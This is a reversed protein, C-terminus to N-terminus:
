KVREIPTFVNSSQWFADKDILGDYEKDITYQKTGAWTDEMHGDHDYVMFYQDRSEGLITFPAKPDKMTLTFPSLRQEQLNFISSSLYAANLYVKEWHDIMLYGDKSYAISHSQDNPFTALVVSEESSMDTKWLQQDKIGYLSGQEYHADGSAAQVEKGRKKHDIDYSYYSKTTDLFANQYAEYKKNQLLQDIDAKFNTKSFILQRGQAAELYEYNLDMVAEYSATQLNIAYLKKETTIGTMSGDQMKVYESKEVQIYLTHDAIAICSSDFQYGEELQFLEKQNKGDLDMQLISPIRNGGSIQFGLDDNGSIENSQAFEEKILYLHDGDLFLRATPADKVFSTCSTDKHHCEPKDCLYLEKKSQYDVYQLNHITNGEEDEQTTIRYFGNQNGAGWFTNAYTIDERQENQPEQPEEKSSSSATCATLLVCCCIMWVKKM